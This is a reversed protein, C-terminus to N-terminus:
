NSLKGTVMWVSPVSLCQWFSVDQVVLFVVCYTSISANLPPSHYGPFLPDRFIKAPDQFCKQCNKLDWKKCPKNKGKKSDQFKKGLLRLSLNKVLIVHLGTRPFFGLCRLSHSDALVQVRMLSPFCSFFSMLWVWSRCCFCSGCAWYQSNFRCTLFLVLASLLLKMCSRVSSASVAAPLLSMFLSYSIVLASDAFSLFLLVM